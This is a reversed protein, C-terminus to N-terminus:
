FRLRASPGLRAPHASLDFSLSRGEPLKLSYLGQEAARKKSMQYQVIGGVLLGTGAIQLAGLLVLMGDGSNAQPIALFPGALPIFLLPGVDKCSACATRNIDMLVAGSVVAAIYSAGLMAIGGIM